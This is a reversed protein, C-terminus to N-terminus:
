FLQQFVNVNNLIEIGSNNNPKEAEFKIIAKYKEM